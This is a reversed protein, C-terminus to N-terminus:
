LSEPKTDGAAVLEPTEATNRRDRVVVSHPMTKGYAKLEAAIDSLQAPHEFGAKEDAILAVTITIAVIM